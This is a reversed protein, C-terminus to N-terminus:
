LKHLMLLFSLCNMLLELHSMFETGEFNIMDRLLGELIEFEQKLHM